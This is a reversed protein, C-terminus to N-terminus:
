NWAAASGDYQGTLLSSTFAADEVFVTEATVGIRKLAETVLDLAFRAQGSANTFPPWVTSVLKLPPSAQGQAQLPLSLTSVIAAVCLAGLAVHAILSRQSTM